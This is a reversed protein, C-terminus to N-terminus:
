GRHWYRPGAVRAHAEQGSIRFDGQYEFASAEPSWVFRIGAFLFFRQERLDLLPHLFAGAPEDLLAVGDVIPAADVIAGNRQSIGGQHAVTWVVNARASIGRTIIQKQRAYDHCCGGTVLLAKIAKGKSQGKEKQATGVGGVLVLLGLTLLPLLLVIVRKPSSM